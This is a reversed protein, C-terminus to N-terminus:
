DSLRYARGRFVGDNREPQAPPAGAAPRSPAPAGLRWRRVIKHRYRFATLSIKKLSFVLATPGETMLHPEKVMLDPYKCFINYENMVLFKM